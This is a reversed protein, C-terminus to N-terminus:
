TCVSVPLKSTKLSLFLFEPRALAKTNGLTSKQLYLSDMVLNQGPLYLDTRKSGILNRVWKPHTLICISCSHVVQRILENLQPHYILHTFQGKLQTVNFHYGMSCHAKNLVEKCLLLPLCLTLITQHNHKIKKYLIGSHLEFTPVPNTAIKRKIELLQLDMNQLTIM